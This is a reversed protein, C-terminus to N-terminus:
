SRRERAAILAEVADALRYHHIAEIEVRASALAHAAADSAVHEFQLAVGCHPSIDRPGPILRCALGAKKLAKEGRMAHLSAFFTVLGDFATM